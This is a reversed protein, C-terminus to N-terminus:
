AEQQVAQSCYRFFESSTLFLPLLALESAQLILSNHIIIGNLIRPTALLNNNTRFLKCQCWLIPNWSLNIAIFITFHTQASFVSISCVTKLLVLSGKPSKCPRKSPSWQHYRGMDESRQLLPSFVAFHYFVFCHTSYQVICFFFFCLCNLQLCTKNWDPFRVGNRLESDGAFSGGDCYRLKVRNWNYFDALNVVFM